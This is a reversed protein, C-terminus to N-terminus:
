TALAFDIKLKTMRAICLRGLGSKVKEMKLVRSKKLKSKYTEFSRVLDTTGVM